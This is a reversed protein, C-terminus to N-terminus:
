RLVWLLPLLMAVKGGRMIYTVHNLIWDFTQVAGDAANWDAQAQGRRAAAEDRKAIQFKKRDNYYQQMRGLLDLSEARAYGYMGDSELLASRSPIHLAIGHGIVAGCFFEACSRQYEYETANLMEVGCVYIEEGAEPIHPNVRRAVIGMIAAGIMFAFTSTFYPNAALKECHQGFYAVLAEVPFRRSMPIDPQVSIMYTPRDRETQLEGLYDMNQKLEATETILTERSHMEWRRDWRPVHAHLMNLIWIECDPDEFPAYGMTESAFGVIAVKSSRLPTDPWVERPQSPPGVPVTTDDHLAACPGTHGRRRTCYWGPPPLTCREGKTRM